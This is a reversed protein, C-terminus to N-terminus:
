RTGNSGSLHGGNIYFTANSIVYKRCLEQAKGRRIRMGDTLLTLYAETLSVRNNTGLGTTWTTGLDSFNDHDYSTGHWLRIMYAFM